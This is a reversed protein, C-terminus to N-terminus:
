AGSKIRADMGYRWTVIAVAVSHIAPDLGAIVVTPTSADTSDRGRGGVEDGDVHAHRFEAPAVDREGFLKAVRARDFQLDPRDVRRHQM